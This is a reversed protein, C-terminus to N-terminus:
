HPDPQNLNPNRGSTLSIPLSLYTTGASILGGILSHGLGKQRQSPIGTESEPITYSPGCGFTVELLSEGALAPAKLQCELRLTGDIFVALQSHGFPRRPLAHSIALCHWRGDNLPFDSLHAFHLEKKQYVVIGLIGDRTVWLQLLPGAITCLGISNFDVCSPYICKLHIIHIQRHPNTSTLRHVSRALYTQDDEVKIVPLHRLLFILAEPIRVQAKDGKQTQISLTLIASIVEKSPPGREELTEWLTGLIGSKKLAYMKSHWEGALSAGITEIVSVVVKEMKM